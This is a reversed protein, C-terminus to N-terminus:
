ASFRYQWLGFPLIKITPTGLEVNFGAYKGVTRYIKRQPLFETLKAFVYKEQNVIKQRFYRKKQKL